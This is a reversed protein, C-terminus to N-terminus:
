VQFNEKRCTSKMMKVLQDFDKNMRYANTAAACEDPWIETIHDEYFHSWKRKVETSPRDLSPVAYASRDRFDRAAAYLASNPFFLYDQCDTSIKGQVQLIYRKLWSHMSNALEEVSDGELEPTSTQLETDLADLSNRIPFIFFGKVSMSFTRLTELAQCIADYGGSEAVHILRDLWEDPQEDDNLPVIAEMKGSNKDALIHVIQLKLESVLEDLTDDLSLFDDIIRVRIYETIRIYLEHQTTSGRFRKIFASIEDISPIRTLVKKLMRNFESAFEKNEVDRLNKRSECLEYLNGTWTDWTLDISDEFQRRVDQSMSKSYASQIQTTLSQYVTYLESLQTQVRSILLSDIEDLRESMQQLLPELLKQEVEDVNMCNVDLAKCIPVANRERAEEVEQALSSILRGKQEGDSMDRNFVWFLMQKAYSVSVQRAIEEIIQYHQADINPGKIDPRFMYIIADSDERIARIMEEEVGMATDGLGITDVLVVKGCKDYSPFRCKINAEKVGLYTFYHIDPNDSKYQAVHSEIEDAKITVTREEHVGLEHEFEGIHDIYKKLHKWRSNASANKPDIRNQLNRSMLGPIEKISCIKPEGDGFLGSLYDNVIEVIKDATYFTIDAEVEPLGENTIISKAGTCHDGDASPIIHGDLGSIQQMVLSKGQRAKGVFSMHVHDRSFRKFLRDLEALTTDCDTVFRDVVVANLKGSLEDNGSQALVNRFSQFDVITGRVTQLKKIEQEVRAAQGKRAAIIKEIREPVSM